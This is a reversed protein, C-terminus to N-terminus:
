DALYQLHASPTLGCKKVMKVYEQAVRKRNRDFLAGDFEINRFIRCLNYRKGIFEGTELYPIHMSKALERTRVDHVICIAPVGSQMSVMTGHIRTNISGAYHQIDYMWAPISTPMVGYEKLFAVLENADNMGLFDTCKKFYKKENDDMKEDFIAKIFEKPRQIFYRSGKGLKVIRLLENEVSRLDGKICAGHVAIKEGDFSRFKEELKVGLNKDKSILLSPCGLPDVNMIGHQKCLRVSYEGRIGIKETRSSVQRLFDIVSDSIDPFHDESESQAGLGITLCPKDLDRILNAINQLNATSNLFNAAPIVLASIDKKLDSAKTHWGVLLFDEDLLKQTAYWFALNGINHGTQHMLQDVTLNFPESVYGLNEAFYAVTM